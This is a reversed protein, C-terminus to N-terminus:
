KSAMIDYYRDVLNQACFEKLRNQNSQKKINKANVIYNRLETNLTEKKNDSDPLSRLETYYRKFVAKDEISPEIINQFLNYFNYIL